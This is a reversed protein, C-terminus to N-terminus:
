AGKKDTVSELSRIADKFEGMSLPYILRSPFFVVVGSSLPVHLGERTEAPSKLPQPVHQQVDNDATEDDPEEENEGVSANGSLNLIGNKLLGAYEFTSQITKATLGAVSDKIGFKRILITSLMSPLPKGDFDRAVSSFLKPSLAAERLAVEKEGELPFILRQTLSAEKYLAGARELLGYHVLAAIVRGARGGIKESDSKHGMAEALTMRDYPGSGLKERVRTIKEVAERLDIVPYATSRQM